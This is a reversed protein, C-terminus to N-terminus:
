SRTLPSAGLALRAVNHWGEAPVGPLRVGAPADAGLAEEAVVSVVTQLLRDQTGGALDTAEEALAVARAREGAASAALLGALLAQVRDHYTARPSRRVGALLRDVAEGDGTAARALALASASAPHAEPDPAGGMRDLLSAAREAQGDQLLALAVGLLADSQGIAAVDLGDVDIDDLAGLAAEPDGLAVQTLVAVVLGAFGMPQETEASLAYGRQMAALGEDIRGSALLARALTATSQVQGGLDDARVMAAVAEEAPGIAEEARGSWLRVSAILMRLMGTGWLDGRQGSEPLLREALAEADAFDGRHFKVWALLGQAWGLGGTDGIATFVAVSAELHSEAVDAHGAEYATWALNQLAWAEERQNGVERAVTLAEEISRTAAGRDGLFLETMGRLRLAEGRVAEAGADALIAVARTLIERSTVGDGAKMELDGLVVLAEGYAALDGRGDAHALAKTLDARADDLERVGIGCRARRVLAAVAEPGAEDEL